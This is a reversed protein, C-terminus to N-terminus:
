PAASAPSQPPAQQEAHDLTFLLYSDAAHQLRIQVPLNQLQPALWIQAGLQNPETAARVVHWCSLAGIPTVVTDEGVVTFTWDTMGSPRAVAYSLTAGPHFDAPHRSLRSAIQLFLSASDQVHPPLPLVTPSASFHLTDDSRDFRVSKERTFVRETYHSPALWDGDIRGTSRYAFGILASGSLTAEYHDGDVSWVLAGSGHLDGRWYGTIAYNLRTSPPWAPAEPRSPTTASAPSSAAPARHPATPGSARGSAGGAPQSVPAWAVDDGLNSALAPAPAPPPSSASPPHASAVVVAPTPAPAPPETRAAVSRRPKATPKPAAKRQPPSPPRPPATPKLLETYIPEPQKGVAWPSFASGLWDLAVLHLLLVGLGLGVM